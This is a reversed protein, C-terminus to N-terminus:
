RGRMIEVIKQYKIPSFNNPELCANFYKSDKLTSNHVHGHINFRGQLEDPHIPAHSLWSDKYKVLGHVTEFAKLIQNFKVGKAFKDTDHNGLVLKKTGVLMSILELDEATFAIDGLFWVVDRKNVVSSYNEFIKAEREEKSSFNGSFKYANKHGLHWDSTVYVTSM